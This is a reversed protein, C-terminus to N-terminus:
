PQSHQWSKYAVEISYGHPDLVNAAYYRSDYYLRAGPPGNGTASANLAAAYFTDAKEESDAVFGIHAVRADAARPWFFVRGHSGFGKLDPHGEPEEVGDNDVTHRIGVTNEPWFLEHPTWGLLHGRRLRFSPAAIESRTCRAERSDHLNSSSSKRL